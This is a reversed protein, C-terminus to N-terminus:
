EQLLWVSGIPGIRVVAPIGLITLLDELEVSNAGIIVIKALTANPM